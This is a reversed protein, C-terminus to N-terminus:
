GEVCRFKAYMYVYHPQFWNRFSRRLMCAATQQSGGKMVYHQGDFFNTSYGPYFPFAQFGPFPEFRSGTWEWGNGLLNNVGFASTGEPHANVPTPNLNVFNFNGHIVEPAANGWPFDNEKGGM